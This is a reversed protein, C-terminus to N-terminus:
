EFRNVWIDFRTGDHKVSVALANGNVGMVVQLGLTNEGPAIIETGSWGSGAVYHNARTDWIDTGDDQRWVALANGSADMAIKPDFAGGANDVEILEAKNWGNDVVYRSGWISFRGRDNQTWLAVANGDADVAIQPDFAFAGVADTGILEAGSWGGGVVYRNAWINHRGDKFDRWVALANGKADMAIGPWAAGDLPNTILEAGGWGSDIVYRSAWIGGVEFWVALANGDADLVVQPRNAGVANDTGIRKREAVGWGSGVEYRKAWINFDTNGVTGDSQAWVVMANGDANMAIQADFANGANDTEILEAVGWGNDIDYRNAWINRRTGDSQDWVVLANGNADMAIQPRTANGANDIEILEALGWGNGTEYRIAWINDRTGDSQSWVVLANGNADLAIQPESTVGLDAVIRMAERWRPGGADMVGISFTLAASDNVGDNAIVTVLYVNDGTADLPNRFDPPAAFVLDAGSLNFFASDAGGVIRYTFASSDADTVVITTVDTTQEVVSLTTANSIVPVEDNVDTLTLIIEVPESDNIGDNAIVTVNYVNDADSDQPADFDPAAIFHLNNETMSFLGSDTGSLTYTFTSSDIDTVMIATVATTNEVVSLNLNTNTITPADNQPTISVEVRITDMGGQGDSVQVSFVDSGNVDTEPTYSVIASTNNGAIGATGRSAPTAISWNLPDGENDTATLTLVFATPSSDEDMSVTILAGQIIQPAQNPSDQIIVVTASPPSDGNSNQAIVRYYLTTPLATHTFSSENVIASQPESMDAQTSWQVTYREANVVSQWQLTNQGTTTTGRVNQPQAPPTDPIIGDPTASISDSLASEGGGNRASVQYRYTTNNILGTHRYTPRANTLVNGSDRPAIAPDDSWYLTYTLEPRTHWNISLEGGGSTISLGTPTGPPDPQPTVNVPATLASFGGANFAQLRFFITQGNNLNSLTDGPQVTSRTWQALPAESDPYWFVRYHTATATLEFNITVQGDGPKVTLETPTAPPPIQPQAVLLASLASEGGANVAAIRYFYSQGNELGDHVFGPQITEGRLRNSTQPDIDPETSWYIVYHSAQAVPTWSLTVQGNDTLTRADQPAQEPAPVQPTASIENSLPSENGNNVASVQFFYTAGNIGTFFYGPQINSIVETSSRRDNLVQTWYLNYAFSPSVDSETDPAPDPPIFDILVQGNGAEASLGGPVGPVSARPRAWVEESFRGEGGANQASVIYYYRQGNQLSTHHLQWRGNDNRTPTADDILTGNGSRVGPRTAYYIRYGTIAEDPDNANQPAAASWQLLIAANGPQAVLQRPTNPAPERPTANIPASPESLGQPSQAQLQIQYQRANTLGTVRYPSSIDAIIQENITLTYGTANQVPNWRVLITEDGALAQIDAPVGPIIVQPTGNVETSLASEGHDNLASLRYRYRTNNNLQIHTYPPQIQTFRADTTSIEGTEDTTWYLNYGLAGDVLPWNLSLQGNELSVTLDAPTAPVPGPEDVSAEGPPTIQVPNSLVSVGTRNRARVRYYYTEGDLLPAHTYPSTVQPLSAANGGTNDLPNTENWLLEYQNAVGSHQWYLTVQGSTVDAQTIQPAILPPTQPTASQEPSGESPGQANNAVLRYFYNQGNELGSHVFPSVVRDIRTDRATVGTSNKWYLTYHTAGPVADWRLTIRANGPQLELNDPVAPRATEPTGEVVVSAASRGFDTNSTVVYYYTTGNALGRHTFHPQRTDIATGTAPNVEAETSWYVTYGTAGNVSSWNLENVRTGSTLTVNQPITRATVPSGGGGDGGCASLILAGVWILPFRCKPFLFVFFSAFRHNLLM